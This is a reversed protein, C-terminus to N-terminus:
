LAKLAKRVLELKPNLELAKEYEKRARDKAGRRAAIDGLRFHVNAPAPLGREVGVGPAALVTRLAQEGRDLQGGTIAALRGVWFLLVLDGPKRAIAKDLLAFAEDSRKANGLFNVLTLAANLSDPYEAAVARYEREAGAMDKEHNAINARAYHGDWPSLRFIMEAQERAKALSGGMVGPAQLYFELLGDHGGINAPDLQVTREFEAKVHKALFPQRLVSARQAQTGIARAFWLHYEANGDDLKVAKEFAKAAADADNADMAARGTKFHEAASQAAIGSAPFAFWTMTVAVILRKLTV